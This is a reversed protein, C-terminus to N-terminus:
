IRKIFNKKKLLINRAILFFSNLVTSELNTLLWFLESNPELNFHIM